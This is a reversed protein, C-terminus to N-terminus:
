ERLWGPPVDAKRAEEPIVVNIMNRAENIQKQVAKMEEEVKGVKARADPSALALTGWPRILANREEELEQHRKESEALRSKWDKIKRRWEAKRAEDDIPAGQDQPTATLAPLAGPQEKEKRIEVRRARSRYKEPVNGLTDTIHGVGKEDTWEYLYPKKREDEEITGATQAWLSTALLLIGLFSILYRMETGRRQRRRILDLENM